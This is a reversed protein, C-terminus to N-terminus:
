ALATSLFAGATLRTYLITFTITAGGTVATGADGTGGHIYLNKTSELTIPFSHTGGGGILSYQTYRAFSAIVDTWVTSDKKGESDANNTSMAFNTVGGLSATKVSWLINDIVVDGDATCLLGAAGQGATYTPFGTPATEIVELVGQSGIIGAGPLEILFLDGQAVAASWVTGFTVLGSDGDFDSIINSEGYVIGSINVVSMGNFFDDGYSRLSPDYLTTTSGNADNARLLIKSGLINSHMNGGKLKSGTVPHHKRLVASTQQPNGQEGIAM